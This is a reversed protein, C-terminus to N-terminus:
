YVLATVYHIGFVLHAVQNCVCSKPSTMCGPSIKWVQALCRSRHEALKGVDWMVYHGADQGLAVELLPERPPTLTAKSTGPQVNSSLM